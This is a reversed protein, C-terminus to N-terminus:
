RTKKIIFHFLNGERRTELIENRTRDSWAILEIEATIDDSVLHVVTGEPSHSILDDLKVLVGACESGIEFMEYDPFAAFCRVKFEEIKAGLTASAAAIPLLAKEEGIVLPELKVFWGRGYPDRNLLKPDDRLAENVETIMGTLPSRVTDFHRPGETSGLSKGKEVITGVDKFSVSTLPGSLWALVTNVGLVASGGEFRAWVNRETDYLVDEAFLCNKIRQVSPTM